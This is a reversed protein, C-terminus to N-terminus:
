FRHQDVAQEWALGRLVHQEMYASAQYILCHFLSGPTTSLSSSPARFLASESKEKDGVRFLSTSDLSLFLYLSVEGILLWSQNIVICICYLM